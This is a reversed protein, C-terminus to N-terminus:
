VLSTRPELGHALRNIRRFIHEFIQSLFASFYVCRRPDYSMTYQVCHLPPPSAFILLKIACVGRFKLQNALMRVCCKFPMRLLQYVHCCHSCVCLLWDENCVVLPLWFSIWSLNVLQEEILSVTASCWIVIVQGTSRSLTAYSGGERQQKSHTAMSM